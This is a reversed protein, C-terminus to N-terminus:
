SLKTPQSVLAPILLHDVTFLTFTGARGQKLASSPIWLSPSVPINSHTQWKLSVWVSLMWFIYSEGRSHSILNHRFGWCRQLAGRNNKEAVLGWLPFRPWQIPLGLHWQFLQIRPLLPWNTAPLTPTSVTMSLLILAATLSAQSMCVM